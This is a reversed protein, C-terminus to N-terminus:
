VRIAVCKMHVSMHTWNTVQHRSIMAYLTIGTEVTNKLSSAKTLFSAQVCIPQAHLTFWSIIPPQHQTQARFLHTLDVAFFAPAREEKIKKSTCTKCALGALVTQWTMAGRTKRGWTVTTSGSAGSTMPSSFPLEEQSCGAHKAHERKKELTQRQM